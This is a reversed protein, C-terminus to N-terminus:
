CNFTVRGPKSAVPDPFVVVSQWPCAVWTAPVAAPVFYPTALFAVITETFTRLQAPEPLM